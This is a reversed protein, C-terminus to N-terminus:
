LSNINRHLKIRDEWSKGKLDIKKKIEIIEGKNDKKIIGCTYFLKKYKNFVEQQFDIFKDEFVRHLFIKSEIPPFINKYHISVDGMIDPIYKLYEPQNDNGLCMMIYVIIGNKILHYKAINIEKKFEGQGYSGGRSFIPIRNEIVKPYINYPPNIYIVKVSENNVTNLSYEEARVNIKVNNRSANKKTYEVARPNKDIALINGGFYKAFLISFFGSGSGVELFDWEAKLVNKTECIEEKFLEWTVIQEEYFVGFVNRKGPIKDKLSDFEVYVDNYHYSREM